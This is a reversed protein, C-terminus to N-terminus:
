TIHFTVTNSGLWGDTATATYTGAPAPAAQARCGPSSPQRNWSIPLVTPVGRQLDTVLDGAGQVCDSSNWIQASGSRIILEIHSAGVNFTCTQRSTGVVDVTFQPLQGPGYSQQASFLSLVVNGHPCAGPGTSTGAGAGPSTAAGSSSGPGAAPSAPPSASPSASGSGAHGQGSPGAGTGGGSGPGGGGGGLDQPQGANSGGASGGAASGGSPDGGGIAGDFAWAIVGLVSLGITLAVLRRRWYMAALPSRERGTGRRRMWRLWVSRTGARGEIRERWRQYRFTNEGM